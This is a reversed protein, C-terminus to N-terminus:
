VYPVPYIEYFHKPKEENRKFSGNLFMVENPNSIQWLCFYAPKDKNKLEM